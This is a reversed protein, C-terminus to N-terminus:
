DWMAYDILYLKGQHCRPCDLWEINHGEYTRHIKLFEINTGGCTPCTTEIPLAEIARRIQSEVDTAGHRVEHVVQSFYTVFEEINNKRCRQLFDRSGLYAVNVEACAKCFIFEYHSTTFLGSGESFSERLPRYGCADCPKCKYITGM